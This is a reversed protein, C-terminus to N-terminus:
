AAAKKPAAKHTRKKAAPAAAKPAPASAAAPAAPTEGNMTALMARADLTVVDAPDILDVFTAAGDAASGHHRFVGIKYLTPPLAIERVGSAPIIRQMIIKEDFLIAISTGPDGTVILNPTAPVAPAAEAQPIGAARALFSSVMPNQLLAGLDLSPAKSRNRAISRGVSRTFESLALPFAVALGATMKGENTDAAMLALAQSRAIDRQAQQEDTKAIHANLRSIREQLEDVENEASDLLGSLEERTCEDDSPAPVAPPPSPAPTEPKPDPTKDTM